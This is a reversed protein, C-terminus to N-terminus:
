IEFDIRSYCCDYYKRNEQQKRISILRNWDITEDEVVIRKKIDHRFKQLEKQITNIQQKLRDIDPELFNEEDRYNRIEETIPELEKEWTIRHKDISEILQYRVKEAAKEIFKIRTQKWQEIEDFFDLCRTTPNKLKQIQDLIEDHSRIVENDFEISLKEEHKKFDKACFYKQCGICFNKTSPKNCIFCSISEAM